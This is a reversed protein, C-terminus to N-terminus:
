VQPDPKRFSAPQGAPIVTPVKGSYEPKRKEVFAAVGDQVDPGLSYRVIHEWELRIAVDLPADLGEGILRKLGAIAPASKAAMVETMGEVEAHVRDDPVIKSIFNWSELERATLLEGTFLLRKLRHPGVVRALISAEGAGPLFGYNLHADGIKVNEGAVVIDCNAIIELGGAVAVGQVAAIVPKPLSRLRAMFVGNIELWRPWGEKVGRDTGLLSQEFPLDGGASFARGAGTIVVSRVDPDEAQDLGKFLAAMLDPALGNLTDQRDLTLWLAPGRREIRVASEWDPILATLAGPDGHVAAGLAEVQDIAEPM